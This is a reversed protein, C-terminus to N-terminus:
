RVEETLGQSGLWAGVERNKTHDALDKTIAYVKQEGAM